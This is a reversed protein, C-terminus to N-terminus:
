AAGRIEGHVQRPKDGIEAAVGEQRQLATIPTADVYTEIRM